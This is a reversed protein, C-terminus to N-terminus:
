ERVTVSRFDEGLCWCLFVRESENDGSSVKFEYFCSAHLNILNAQEVPSSSELKCRVSFSSMTQLILLPPCRESIPSIRHIRIENNPFRFGHGNASVVDLEGLRVDGHYVVSKFASRSM